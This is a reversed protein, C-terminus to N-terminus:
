VRKRGCSACRGMCVMGAAETKCLEASPAVSGNWVMETGEECGSFPWVSRSTRGESTAQEEAGVVRERKRADRTALDM